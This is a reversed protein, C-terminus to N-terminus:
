RKPVIPTTPLQAGSQAVLISQKGVVVPDTSVRLLVDGHVTKLGALNGDKDRLHFHHVELVLGDPTTMQESGAPLLTFSATTKQAKQLERKVRQDGIQKPEDSM